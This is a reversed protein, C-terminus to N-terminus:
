SPPSTPTWRPPPWGLHVEIPGTVETPERLPETQFVLVDPRSGLPLYSPRCGHFGPAERQDFGGPRMIDATREGRGAYSPHHRLEGRAAAGDAVVPGAVM